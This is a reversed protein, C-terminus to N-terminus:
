IEEIGSIQVKLNGIESMLEGYELTGKEVKYMKDKDFEELLKFKVIYIGEYTAYCCRKNEIVETLNDYISNLTSLEYKVLIHMESLTMEKGLIKGKLEEVRYYM